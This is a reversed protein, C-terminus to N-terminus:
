ANRTSAVIISDLIVNMSILVSTLILKIVNLGMTVIATLDVMPISVFKLKTVLTLWVSTSMSALFMLHRIKPLDTTVNVNLHAQHISVSAIKTVNTPEVLGSNM